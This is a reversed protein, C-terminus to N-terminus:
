LLTKIQVYLVRKAFYPWTKTYSFVKVWYEKNCSEDFLVIHLAVYQFRINNYNISYNDLKHTISLAELICIDNEDDERKLIDYFNKKGDM